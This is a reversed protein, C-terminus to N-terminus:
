GGNLKPVRLYAPDFEAVETLREWDPLQVVRGKSLRILGDERLKGMTRNVHVQSLGTADGLDGQTAPLEFSHEMSLGVSKLRFWIECLLHAMREYASRRGVNAVWDRHIAADVLTDSWFALALRPHDKIAAFLRHHPVVALECPGLASVAHDMDGMILARLDCFDGPVLFATIQRHGNGLLTYRCAIGTLILRVSTPRSTDVIDERPKVHLVREPLESITQRETESLVMVQELKRLLMTTPM